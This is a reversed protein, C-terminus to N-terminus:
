GPRNVLGCGTSKCAACIHRGNPTAKADFSSNAGTSNWGDIHRVEFRPQGITADAVELLARRNNEVVFHLSGAVLKRGGRAILTVNRSPRLSELSTAAGFPLGDCGNVPASCSARKM